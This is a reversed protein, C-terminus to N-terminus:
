EGNGGDETGVAADDDAGDPEDETEAPDIREATTLFDALNAILRANDLVEARPSTLVRADGLAVVHGDMGIVIPALEDAVPRTSSRTDGDAWVLPEVAGRISSATYLVIESLGDTLPHDAFQRFIVHQYNTQYEVINFLYDHEYHIGLGGALSGITSDPQTADAAMVVRGGTAVFERIAEVEGASFEIMRPAVVLLADARDLAARLAAEREGDSLRGADQRNFDIDFGLESIRALLPEIVDVVRNAHLTDVVLTGERDDTVPDALRAEPDTGIELEQMGELATDVPEYVVRDATLIWGASFVVVFTAAAVLTFRSTVGRAAGRLVRKITGDAQENTDDGM